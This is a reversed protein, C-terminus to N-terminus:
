APSDCPVSLSPSVEDQETEEEDPEEEDDDDDDEDLAISSCRRVETRWCAKDENWMGQHGVSPQIQQSSRKARKLHCHEDDDMDEDESTEDTQKQLQDSLPIESLSRSEEIPM